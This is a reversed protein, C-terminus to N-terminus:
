RCAIDTKSVYIEVFCCSHKVVRGSERTNEFATKSENTYTFYTTTFSINPHEIIM